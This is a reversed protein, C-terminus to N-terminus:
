DPSICIPRKQELANRFPESQSVTFLKKSVEGNVHCPFGQPYHLYYFLCFIFPNSEAKKMFFM